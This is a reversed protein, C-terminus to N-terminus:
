PTKQGYTASKGHKRNYHIDLLDQSVRKVSGDLTRTLYAMKAAEELAAAIFVSAAGDKGWTFVGHNKVLIAPIKMPDSKGVTEIIVKGTNREYDKELEAKALSRACPVDGYFYDAHTTGFAIVPRGSQAFATAFTSHTHTIGGIAPYARYLELHTALDVSPRLAGDVTKGDFDVIVIDGAKMQEYPVGSPKIAVVGNKRDAESVNGWTFKVLGHKVLDLNAQLVREKLENFM